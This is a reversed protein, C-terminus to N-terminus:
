PAILALDREHTAPQTATDAHTVTVTVACPRALPPSKSKLYNKAVMPSRTPAQSDSDSPPM